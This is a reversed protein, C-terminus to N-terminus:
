KTKSKKLETLNKYGDRNLLKILGQNIDCVWTPGHFVFATYGQILSAGAAFRDYADEASFIGGVSIIPLDSISALTRLTQM